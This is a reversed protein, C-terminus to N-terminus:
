EGQYQQLLSEYDSSNPLTTPESQGPILYQNPGLEKVPTPAKVTVKDYNYTADFTSGGGTNMMRRLQYEDDDFWIFNKSETDAPDLIQYKFCTYNGCKEKGIKKYVTKGAEETATPEELKTGTDSTYQDVQGEEITQKWWTGDAAKTYLAKGITITEYSTEGEIKMSTKDDGESKITSTTKKGDAETVSTLTYYKQAKWGTFFKCLDKDDYECKANQIADQLEKSATNTTSTAEKKSTKQMVFWGVGALGVIVVLALIIGLHGFGKQDKYLKNM